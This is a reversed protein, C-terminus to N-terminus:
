QYGKAALSFQKRLLFYFSIGLLIISLLAFTLRLSTFDSMFGILPPGSLFGAYGLTTVTAIGTGPLVSSVKAARSFLVPIVNALGLGIFAFSIIASIPTSIIVSLGMGLGAVVIGSRLVVSEGLKALMWDGSFRCFAMSLSFAAFGYAAVAPTAGKLDSIFVASWDAMAGETMMIIYALVSLLLLSKPPIFLKFSERGAAPKKVERDTSSPLLSPFSILSIIIMLLAMGLVHHLPVVDASLLAGALAAGMLGGTSFLAHLSSFMKHGLKEEVKLGHANMSVDMAGNFIGFFFMMGMQLSLTDAWLLTPLLMCLALCSIIVIIKSGMRAILRGTLPMSLTAGLALFLLTFGLESEDLLFKEQIYPIHPIWSANVFGNVFFIASISLRQPSLSPLKM